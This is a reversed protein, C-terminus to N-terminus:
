LEDDAWLTKKKIISIFKRCILLKDFRLQAVCLYRQVAPFKISM